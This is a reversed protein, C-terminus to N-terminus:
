ESLQCGLLWVLLPLSVISLSVHLTLIDWPYRMSKSMDKDAPKIELVQFSCHGDMTLFSHSATYWTDRM